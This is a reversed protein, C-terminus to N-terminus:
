CEYSIDKKTQNLILSARVPYHDSPYCGDWDRRIIAVDLPTFEESAFIYDIRRTGEGGRFYHLTGGESSLERLRVGAIGRETFTRILRSDPASNFDGMLLTPLPDVSNLKAIKKCILGLQIFRVAESFVDLHTNFVRIRQSSSPLMLETVTCIRPFIASLFRSPLRFTAHRHIRIGERVAIDAHEDFLKSSRGRGILRLNPFARCLDARMRPTLEQVGTIDANLERLQSFLRERRRAWNNEGLCLFDTKLNFTAINIIQPTDTM